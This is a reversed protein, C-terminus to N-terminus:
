EVKPQHTQTPVPTPSTDTFVQPRVMEALTRAVDDQLRPLFTKLTETPRQGYFTYTYAENLSKGSITMEPEWRDLLNWQGFQCQYLEFLIRVEGHRGEFRLDLAIPLMASRDNLRRRLQNVLGRAVPRLRRELQDSTLNDHRRVIANLRRVLRRSALVQSRNIRGYMDYQCARVAVVKWGSLYAGELGFLRKSAQLSGDNCIPPLSNNQALAQWQHRRGAASNPDLPFPAAYAPQWGSFDPPRRFLLRLIIGVILLLVLGSVVVGAIVALHAPDSTNLGLRALPDDPTATPPPTVEPTAAPPLTDPFTLSFQAFNNQTSENGFPEIENVGVAARLSETSGPAFAATSFTLTVRYVGNQRLPPITAAAVEQGSSLIVLQTTAEITADGGLNIVDFKIIAERNDDSFRREINRITYDPSPTQAAAPAALLMLFLLWFVRFM